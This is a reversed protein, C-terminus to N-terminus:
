WPLVDKYEDDLTIEVCDGTHLIEHLSEESVRYQRGIKIYPIGSRKIYALATDYSVNLISAVDTPTLMKSM